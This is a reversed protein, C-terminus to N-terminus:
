FPTEGKLALSPYGVEITVTDTNGSPSSATITHTGPSLTVFLSAGRKSKGVFEGNVFWYVENEKTEARLPLRLSRTLPNPLYRKGDAPSAITLPSTCNPTPLSVRQEELFLSLEKPWLTVVQGNQFRHLDCIELRSVGKTFPAKSRNQCAPSPLKGSISCVERWEITDPPTYWTSKSQSLKQMIKVALPTATQLGVLEQHPTGRPDGYWVVVTYDPNYAVTWADRLGYSTGTKFAFPPISGEEKHYLPFFRTRDALIDAILYSTAQSFIRKGTQPPTKLLFSLEIAEGERALALYARAMELPTTECGGLILADGYYDPNKNIHTFGLQQLTSLFLSAGVSRMVRVAPVNLSYSLATRCNVPGRYREDFNRPVYGRLGLPTDALLSAPTYRGEEFALAYAFPKLASGPSRPAQVCDVWDGEEEFRANGVYALVQGTKNEVVLACATVEQPLTAVAEKMAKELWTQLEFSLSSFVPSPFLTRLLETAHYAYQPFGAPKLPLSEKAAVAYEMPTIVGRQHLADLLILRKRQARDPYKDPRLREPEPLMGILTVAEGLSLNRANKGFYFLSAAEVGRINKGLPIHNLYAELIKEKSLYKELKLAMVIEKAKQVLTRKGPYTMRILQTTITSAGSVIRRERLNQFVARMLALFDFGRHHFFRRDEIEVALLPLWKGMAELTVPLCWEEESSLFVRLIRGERSLVLPSSPYSLIKEPDM